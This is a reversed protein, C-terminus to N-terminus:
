PLVSFSWETYRQGGWNFQDGRGIDLGINPLPRLRLDFSLTAPARGYGHFQPFDQATALTVRLSTDPRPAYYSSLTFGRDMAAGTYAGYGPWLTGDPAIQVVPPYFRGQLGNFFINYDYTSAYNLIISLKRSLSKSLTANSTLADYRNPFDYWTRSADFTMQLTTRLPGRFLPSATFAELTRRYVTEYAGADRLAPFVGGPVVTVGYDGRLHATWGHAYRLDPTRAGLDASSDPGDVTVNLTSTAGTFAGTLTYSAEGLYSDVTASLMQSFHSGLRQYADLAFTRDARQPSDVSAVIYANDGDVIHEDLAVTAGIRTEYRFDAALLQNPGGIIGYPQDFTAGGLSNAGFSPNAAFTYLYAPVPLAGPSNPFSAPLLRVNSHATVEARKSRIYGRREDYDPFAFREGDIPVAHAPALDLTTAQAGGTADLLDVRDRDLDLGIADASVARDGRTLRAHGALILRNHNLDAYAADAAARLGSPFAITVHDRAILAVADAFFTVGGARLDYSVRAEAPRM